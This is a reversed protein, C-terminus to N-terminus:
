PRTTHVLEGLQTDTLDDLLSHMEALPTLGSAKAMLVEAGDPRSWTLIDLWTDDDLRVLEAHLLEPCAAQAEAIAKPRIEALAAARDPRVKGRFVQVHNAM